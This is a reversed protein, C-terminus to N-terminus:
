YPWQVHLPKDMWPYKIISFSFPSKHILLDYARKEVTLEWREDLEVLLGDRVLWNGRLGDISTNGIAPWYGIVAKILGEILTVQENTIIIGDPVPYSMPLGCFLKNLPLLSEETSSIGTVVYQLYHVASCQATTDLFKKDRTLELRDLLMPIYSAILVMGANRVPIGGKVSTSTQQKQLMRKVPKVLEIKPPINHAAQYRDKLQTFSIHLSPPLIIQLKEIGNIFDKQTVGRQTCVEWIIENWINETSIIRWNDSSWAKIIKKFVIHQLETSPIGHISAHGLATYFSEIINLLSHRSRNLHIISAMLQSFNVSRSLWQMQQEPVIEQKLIQLVTAPYHKIIENLLENASLSGNGPYWPAIQKQIILAYALEYLVGKQEALLLDARPEIETEFEHVSSPICGVIAAKLEKTLRINNRKIVSIISENDNATQETLLYQSQQVLAKLEASPLTGTIIIKWSQHWYRDLLHAAVREPVCLLIIDYLLRISELASTVTSNAGAIIWTCFRNFPIAVNLLDIRKQSIPIHRIIERLQSSDRNVELNLLEILKIKSKGIIVIESANNLSKEIFMFLEYDTIKVGDRLRYIKSIPSTLNLTNLNELISKNTIEFAHLIASKFKRIVLEETTHADTQALITDGFDVLKSKVELENLYQFQHKLITTYREILVTMLYKFGNRQPQGSESNFQRLSKFSHPLMVEDSILFESLVSKRFLLILDDSKGKHSNYDALCKKYLNSLRYLIDADKGDNIANKFFLFYEKILADMLQKGQPLYNTVVPPKSIASVKFHYAVAARFSTVLRSAQGHHNPYDSICLWYLETLRSTIEQETIGSIIAVFEKILSSLLLEGKSIIYKLINNHIQTKHNRLKIINVDNFNSAIIKCVAEQQDTSSLIIRNISDLINQNPKTNVGIPNVLYPLRKQEILKSLLKNFLSYQYVSLQLNFEAIIQKFLTDTSGKKLVIVQLAIPLLLEDIALNSYAANAIVEQVIVQLLQFVPNTKKLETTLMRVMYDDLIYNIVSNLKGKDQYRMLVDLAMKPHLRVKRQLTKCASRFDEKHINSEGPHYILLDLLEEFNVELSVSDIISAEALYISILSNYINLASTVETSRYHKISILSEVLQSNNLRKYKRIESIHYSLFAEIDVSSGKSSYLFKLSINYLTKRDANFDLRKLAKSLFDIGSLLEHANGESIASFIAEISSKNLSNIANRWLKETYGLSVILQRFKQRNQRSLGIILGNFEAKGKQSKPGADKFFVLLTDFLDATNQVPLNNGAKLSANENILINITTLFDTKIGYAKSVAIVAREILNILEAYAINYHGAMQRITSKMYAVKNFISGRETLLYNLIWLWLQKRFDKTSTQVITERVQIKTLENSFDIIQTHNNPELGEIIKIINVESIQWAIRKRINEHTVGIMSIMEVVKQLNTQLQYALMQNISGDDQKYAWPLIGNLLFSSILYIHSTDENLIELNNGGRNAYIILDILKESLQNRLRTSLEFELDNYDILGLDLELTQIRWTQEPPCVKDFVDTVEKPMNIRSWHSLREQLESGKDKKDFLTEWRFKSIMHNPNRSM